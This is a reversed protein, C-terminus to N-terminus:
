RPRAKADAARSKARLVAGRANINMTWDWGKLAKGM